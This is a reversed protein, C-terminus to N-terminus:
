KNKEFRELMIEFKVKISSKHKKIYIAGVVLLAAVFVGVVVVITIIIWTKSKEECKDQIAVLLSFDPDILCRQCQSLNIGISIDSTNAEGNVIEVFSYTPQGDSLSVDYFKGYFSVGNKVIKLYNLSKDIQNTSITNKEGGCEQQQEFATSFVVRLTSLLSQYTWGEISVSLKISYPPLVYSMGAFEINMPESSYQITAEIIEISSHILRYQSITTTTTKTTTFNWNNTPISKVVKRSSDLEEVALMNFTFEQGDARFTPTPTTLNEGIVGGEFIKNECYYGNFGSNCQCVGTAKCDGNGNCLPKSSGCDVSVEEPNYQGVKINTSFSYGDVKLIIPLIGVPLKDANCVITSNSQSIATCSSNNNILVSINNQGNDGFYGFLSIVGGESKINSIASILPYVKKYDLTLNFVDSTSDFRINLIKDVDFVHDYAMEISEENLGLVQYNYSDLIVKINSSTNFLGSLIITLSNPLQIYSINKIYNGTIISIPITQSGQYTKFILNFTGIPSTPTFVIMENPVQITFLSPQESTYGLNKGRITISPQYHFVNRELFIDKFKDWYCKFCDPISSINTGSLDVVTLQCYREPVPGYVSSSSVLISVLNTLNNYLPLTTAPIINGEVIPVSATSFMSEDPFPGNYLKRTFSVLQKKFIFLQNNNSTTFSSVPLASLDLPYVTQNTISLQQLSTCTSDIYVTGNRIPDFIGFETLVRTKLYFVANISVLSPFVSEDFTYTSYTTFDAFLNRLTYNKTVKLDVVLPPNTTTLYIFNTPSILVKNPVDNSINCRLLAFSYIQIFNPFNNPFTINMSDFSILWALQTLGVRISNISLNSYDSHDLLKLINLSPNKLLKKQIINIGSIKPFILQTISSNPFGNDVATYDINIDLTSVYQKTNLTDNICIFGLNRPKNISKQISNCDTANMDWPTSFQQAIWRISVLDDSNLPLQSDVITSYISLIFFCVVLIDVIKM